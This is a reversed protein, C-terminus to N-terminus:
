ISFHLPFAPAGIRVFVTNGISVAAKQLMPLDNPSDGLALVDTGPDVGLHRCLLELGQGKTAVACTISVDTPLSKALAVDYRSCIGYIEPLIEDLYKPSSVIHLLHCAPLDEEQTDYGLKLPLPCPDGYERHLYTSWSSESPDPAYFKDGCSINIAARGQCGQVFAM